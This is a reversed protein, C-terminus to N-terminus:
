APCQLAQSSCPPENIAGHTLGRCVTGDGLYRARTTKQCFPAVAGQDNQLSIGAELVVDIRPNLDVGLNRTLQQEGYEVGVRSQVVASDDNTLILHHCRGHHQGQM